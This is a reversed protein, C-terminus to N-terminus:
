VNGVKIPNQIDLSQWYEQRNARHIYLVLKVSDKGFALCLNTQLISFWFTEGTNM